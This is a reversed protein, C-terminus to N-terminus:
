QPLDKIAVIKPLSFKRNPTAGDSLYRNENCFSRDIIAVWRRRAVRLNPYTTINADRVNDTAPGYWSAGNDHTGSYQPNVRVAEIYGYVVFTDSRVTCLNCIPGWALDRVDITTASASTDSLPVLLEALSRIGRGPYKNSDTFDASTKAGETSGAGYSFNKSRSRYAVINAVMQNNMNPIARLVDPSATNVNIRGPLRIKNIDTPGGGIDITTDSYREILAIQSLLRVARVDHYGTNASDTPTATNYFAPDGYYDFLIQADVADTPTGSATMVMNTYPAKVPPTTLTQLHDSILGGNTPGTALLGTTNPTSDFENTIRMIRAFEGM